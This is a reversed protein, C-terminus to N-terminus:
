PAGHFHRVFADSFGDVDNPPFDNIGAAGARGGGGPYRACFAAASVPYRKASRVSVTLSGRSNWTLVAHARDPHAGALEHALTGSIRRAWPEDPLLYVAARETLRAPAVSLGAALDAEYRRALIGFLEDSRAFMLPDSHRLLREHLAAPHVHLDEIADGYANYNISIGLLRLRGRDDEPMRLADALAGATEDLGDGYAGVIAWAQHRGLLHANVISSTCVGRTTDIHLDLAPHAPIPGPEHHDFYSVGVGEALLRQVGSCNPGFAIDLVFVADGRQAQVREVLRIDRKVGTTLTAPGPHSLRLQQLACLGDADGNFAFHLPM